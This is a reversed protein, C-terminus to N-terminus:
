DDNVEEESAEAITRSSRFGVVVASGCGEVAFTPKVYPHIFQLFVRKEHDDFCGMDCVTLACQLLLIAISARSLAPRLDTSWQEEPVKLLALSAIMSLTNLSGATEDVDTEFVSKEDSM